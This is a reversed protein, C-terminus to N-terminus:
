RAIVEVKYPIWTHFGDTTAGISTSYYSPADSLKRACIHEGMIAHVDWREGQDDTYHGLGFRHPDRDLRLTHIPGTYPFTWSAHFM